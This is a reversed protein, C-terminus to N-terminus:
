WSPQHIFINFQIQQQHSPIKKKAWSELMLTKLYLRSSLFKLVYFVYVYSFRGCCRIWAFTCCKKRRKHIRTWFGGYWFTRLRGWLYIIELNKKIWKWIVVKECLSIFLLLRFHLALLKLYKNMWGNEM